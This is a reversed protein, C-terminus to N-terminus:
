SIAKRCNAMTNLMKIFEAKFAKQTKQVPIGDHCGCFEVRQVWLGYSKVGCPLIEDGIIVSFTCNVWRKGNKALEHAVQEITLNM